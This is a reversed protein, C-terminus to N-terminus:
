GTAEEWAAHEQAPSLLLPLSAESHVGEQWLRRLWSELPLIDATEWAALGAAAQGSAFDRALSQALRVNPTVVTIGAAHGARLREFLQGKEM